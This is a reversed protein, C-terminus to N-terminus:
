KMYRLIEFAVAPVIANGLCKLRDVRHSVGQAVRETDPWESCFPDGTGIRLTVWSKEEDTLSQWVQPIESLSTFVHGIETCSERLGQLLQATEQDSEQRAALALDHSMCRLSDDPQGHCQKGPERRHSASGAEGNYWLPRVAERHVEAGEGEARIPDSEGENEGKGHVSPRLIQTEQVGGYGRHFEPINEATSAQRLPQLVERPGANAKQGHEEGTSTVSVMTGCPTESSLGGEDLRESLEDLVRCVGSEVSWWDAKWGGQGHEATCGRTCSDRAADARELGKNETDAAAQIGRQTGSRRESEPQAGRHEGVQSGRRDSLGQETTDPVDEGAADIWGAGTARDGQRVGKRRDAGARRGEDGVEGSVSGAGTREAHAVDACGALSQSLSPEGRDATDIGDQGPLRRGGNRHALIFVRDRRHPAGVACAPVIIPTVEYGIKELDELVEDLTGRGKRRQMEGVEFRGSAKEDETYHRSDVELPSDFEVMTTLGAVNEAIVWTPKLLAIVRLM